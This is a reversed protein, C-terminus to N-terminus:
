LAHGELDVAKRVAEDFITQWAYLLYSADKREDTDFVLMQKTILYAIRSGLAGPIFGIPNLTLPELSDQYSPVAPNKGGFLEAIVLGLQFIDSKTTIASENRAYAILDPTRYFFPMGVGVSEKFIDRDLEDQGNLLKMLGFDGLVCSKGKVFINQPKIDRHVVRPNLGDLYKLASLLQLTYAIKEVTNAEKARINDVLTTPLYEAVVFPYELTQGITQTSHIGSDYVKMISPHNCTKLFDIEQLFKARREGNSLRRFVKLAFLVGQNQGTTASVLFTVANGGVGLTQVNKYGIGSSSQLIEGTDLYFPDSM